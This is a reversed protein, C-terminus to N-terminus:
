RGREESRNINCAVTWQGFFICNNKTWRRSRTKVGRKVAKRYGCVEEHERKSQKKEKSKKMEEKGTNM